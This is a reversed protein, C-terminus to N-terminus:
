SAWRGILAKLARSPRGRQKPLTWPPPPVHYTLLEEMTWCHDTLGAAMAPTRELWKHGGVLGPMRLSAHQCCFNYVTGTLYMAGHLSLCRGAIARTRRCLASIHGRFTSNLREIFATNLVGGGAVKHRLAEITEARGQVLRREIGELNGDVYRKIVQVIHINPWEILKPRGSEGTRFPERFVEKIQSAYTRLGDTVFLLGRGLASSARKVREVLLGILKADRAPAVVGGLWLRTPVEIAMAMWGVVQGLMKVRIEDMQVEGLERPKEVLHEQVAQGHSGGRELWNMVTREDIEFAFVIAQIPCGKSLLKLVLVVTDVATRLRYFPTGKRESFPKKCVRCRYRRKKRDHVTINGKGVQGRAPCAENPCFVKTSDM